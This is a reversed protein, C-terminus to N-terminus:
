APSAKQIEWWFQFLKKEINTILDLLKWMFFRTTYVGFFIWLNVKLNMVVYRHLKSFVIILHENQTEFNNIILAGGIYCNVLFRFSIKLFQSQAKSATRSATSATPVTPSSYSMTKCCWHDMLSFNSLCLYFRTAIYFGNALDHRVSNKIM